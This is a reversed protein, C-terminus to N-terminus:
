KDWPMKIKKLWNGVSSIGSKITSGVKGVVDKVTPGSLLRSVPPKWEDKPLDMTFGSSQLPSPTYSPSTLQTGFDIAPPTYTTPAYTRPSSPQLAPTDFKVDKFQSFDIPDGTGRASGIEGMPGPGSPHFVERPKIDQAIDVPQQGDVLAEQAAVDQAQKDQYKQKGEPTLNDFYTQKLQVERDKMLVGTNKDVSEYWFKIKDDTKALDSAKYLEGNLDTTKQIYYEGNYIGYAYTNFEGPVDGEFM